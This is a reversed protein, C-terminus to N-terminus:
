FELKLKFVGTKYNLEVVLPLANAAVFKTLAEASTLSETETLDNRGEDFKKFLVVAEHASISYEAFITANSTVAFKQDDM